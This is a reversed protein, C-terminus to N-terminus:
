LLHRIFSQAEDTGPKQWFDAACADELLKGQSFFLVRDAIAKAFALEHTVILMTTSHDALSQILHLIEKVNEPDLSSTPEDFLVIDPEICLSRAIAVRQKQGGSLESPYKNAYEKGINVKEMMSFARKEAQERSLNHVKVPAYCLNELVTKNEFLNFNQFITAIKVESFCDITINGSDYPEIGNICRLVTSKGSGSPGLLVAIEQKAIEFSIDHLVINTGYSKILSQVKIM